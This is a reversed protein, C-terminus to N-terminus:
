KTLIKVLEIAVGARSTQESLFTKNKDIIFATYASENTSNAVVYDCKAETFLPVTKEIADQQTMRSALKFGVLIIDPYRKKVENIIKKTRTLKLTLEPQDSSIKTAFPEAMQYDSVAAAHVVIDYPHAQLEAFLTDHLEQYYKFSIIRADRNHYPQLVPGQILTTRFDNELFVDCILQGLTGSSINSIIRTDDIPIWTPGCTILVSKNKM